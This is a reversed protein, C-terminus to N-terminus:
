SGQNVYMRVSKYDRSPTMDMRNRMYVISSSQLPMDSLDCKGSGAVGLGMYQSQSAPISRKDTDLTLTLLEGTLLAEILRVARPRHSRM